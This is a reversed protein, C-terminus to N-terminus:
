ALQSSLELLPGDTWLEHTEEGPGGGGPSEAGPGGRKAGALTASAERPEGSWVAPKRCSAVVLGLSDGMHGSLLTVWTGPQV